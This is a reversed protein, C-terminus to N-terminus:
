RRNAAENEKYAELFIEGFRDRRIDLSDCDGFLVTLPAGASSGRESVVTKIWARIESVGAEVDSEVTPSSYSSRLVWIGSGQGREKICYSKNNRNTFAEWENRYDPYVLLEVRSSNVHLVRAAVACCVTILFIALFSFFRRKKM